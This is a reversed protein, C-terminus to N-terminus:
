FSWRLEIAPELQLELESDHTDLETPVGNQDPIIQNAIGYRASAVITSVRIGFNEVIERDLAFGLEGGVTSAESEYGQGEAVQKAYAGEVLTFLSFGLVKPSTFAFRVGAGGGAAVGWSATGGGYPAGYNTASREYAVGGRGIVWLPGALHRELLLYGGPTGIFGPGIVAGFGFGTSFSWPADRREAAAPKSPADTSPRTRAPKALQRRSSFLSV